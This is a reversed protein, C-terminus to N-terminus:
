ATSRASKRRRWGVFAAGLLTLVGAWLAVLLYDGTSGTKALGGAPATVPPDVYITACASQPDAACPGDIAPPQWPGVPPTTVTAANVPYGEAAYTVVM